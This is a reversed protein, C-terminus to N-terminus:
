VKKKLELKKEEGKLLRKINERHTYFVLINLILVFPLNVIFENFQYSHFYFYKATVIFILALAASLSSVSVIRFIIFVIIFVTLALLSEITLLALLVGLSTAIGKGGKFNAFITWVHGLLSFLSAVVILLRSNEFGSLFYTSIVVSSIGKIADFIIVGIGWGTGLVRTVNTGGTSGSGVTRIDIGKLAKALWLGTPISGILYSVIIAIFISAIM